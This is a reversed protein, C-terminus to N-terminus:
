KIEKLIEDARAKFQPHEAARAAMDRARVKDGANAFSAAASIFAAARATQTAKIQQEKKALLKAKREDSLKSGKIEEIKTKLATENLEFVVAATECYGASEAWRKRMASLRGLGLLAETNKGNYKLADKYEKEARDVEGRELAITGALGYVETNTPLRGKSEEINAQARDNDKLEHYNWAVWYHSEGLLYFGLEINKGLVEIAERNRGLYSLSIGKGLLADRYQPSLVLTTDYYELSKEFEETATYISALLIHVQPSEALGELAKLFHGESELLSGESISLEGLHYCAEYFEPELELLAGLRKRDPRPYIANKYKLLISEPFSKLLQPALEDKKESFYGYGTYFVVYLYAHFEDSAAKSALDEKFRQQQLVDDFVKKLTMISVDQMIGRTRPSLSEAVDFYIQFPKLAANEKIIAEGIQYNAHSLIGVERERILKLLLANLYPAAIKKKMEPRVYLNKYIGIARKFGAYCGRRVQAEAEAAQKELEALPPGPEVKAAPACAFSLAIAALLIPGAARTLTRTKLLIGERFDDKM